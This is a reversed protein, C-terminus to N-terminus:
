SYTSSHMQPHPCWRRVVGDHHRQEATRGHVTVMWAGAAALSRVFAVTGPTSDDRVRIKASIPLRSVAAAAEVMAIARDPTKNALFVGFGGRAASRQPCGLNLDIGVGALVRARYLHYNNSLAQGVHFHITSFDKTRVHSLLSISCLSVHSFIFPFTWSDAFM